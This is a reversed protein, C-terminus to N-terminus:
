FIYNTYLVKRNEWSPFQIRYDKCTSLMYISM